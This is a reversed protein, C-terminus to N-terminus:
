RRQTSECCVLELLSQQLQQPSYPKDRLFMMGESYRLEIEQASMDQLAAFALCALATLFAKFYSDTLRYFKFM